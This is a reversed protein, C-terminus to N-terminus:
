IFNLSIFYYVMTVKKNEKKLKRLCLRLCVLKYKRICKRSASRIYIFKVFIKGYNVHSLSTFLYVSFFSIKVNM